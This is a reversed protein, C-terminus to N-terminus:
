LPYKDPFLTHWLLYAVDGDDTVGDGNFDTNGTVTYVDPFLTYWLLLAVDSDDVQGDANLDGSLAAAQGYPIWTATGGYDLMVDATWKPNSAPYYVTVYSNQFSVEEFVPPDGLFTLEIPISYRGDFMMNGFETLTAPITLKKLAACMYFNGYGMSTLGSPLTVEKLSTCGRFTSSPLETLGDSLKVKELKTCDSFVLNGMTTVSDPVTVKTLASGSFADYDITTVTNPITISQIATKAFCRVGIRELDDAFEVEKLSTCGDFLNDELVKIQDPIRIKVLSSCQSFASGGLELLGEPLEIEKLSTCSAFAGFGIKELGDPLIVKQLKGCTSFASGGLEKLSDPLVIETLSECTGFCQTGTAVLTDPLVVDTVKTLNFFAQNGIYTVGDSVVIKTIEVDWEEWPYDFFSYDAMRGTGYITLVHDMSYKWYVEDVGEEMGCYGSGLDKVAGPVYDEDDMRYLEHFSDYYPDRIHDYNADGRLFHGYETKGCDLSADLNYYERELLVINWFQEAGGYAGYIIRNDIGLELLLRYVLNAIGASNASKKVLAGYATFDAPASDATMPKCTVNSTVWDYVAKIKDYDSEGTLKPILKAVADDVTAEEKATDFYANVFIFTLYYKGAEKYGDLYLVYGAHQWALYDGETPISTHTYAYDMMEVAMEAAALEANNEDFNRAIYNVVITEYRQKLGERLVLGAEWTSWCNTDPMYINDARPIVQRVPGDYIPSRHIVSVSPIPTQEQAHVVTACSLVMLAALLLIISRKM